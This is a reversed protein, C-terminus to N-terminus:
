AAGRNMISVRRLDRGTSNTEAIHTDRQSQAIRADQGREQRLARVESTLADVKNLLAQMDVNVVINGGSAQSRLPIGYKRMATMSAADIVAEGKHLNAKYDDYPVYDLGTAHSNPHVKEWEGNGVAADMFADSVEKLSKGKKLEGTWYNIGATDGTRKLLLPYLSAIQAAPDTLKSTESLAKAKYEAITLTTSTPTKQPKLGDIVAELAKAIDQPLSDINKGMLDLLTNGGLIGGYVAALQAAQSAAKNVLDRQADLMDRQPDRQNKLLDAVSSWGNEVM